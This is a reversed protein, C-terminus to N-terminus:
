CTLTQKAGFAVSTNRQRSNVRHALLPFRSDLGAYQGANTEVPNRCILTRNGCRRLMRLVFRSRCSIAIFESCGPNQWIGTNLLLFVHDMPYRPALIGKMSTVVAFHPISGSRQQAEVPLNYHTKDEAQYGGRDEDDDPIKDKERCRFGLLPRHL